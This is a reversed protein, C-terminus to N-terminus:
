RNHETTNWKELTLDSPVIVKEVSRNAFAFGGIKTLGSLVMALIFILTATKLRGKM